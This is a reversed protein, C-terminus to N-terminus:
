WGVLDRVRPPRCDRQHHRCDAPGHADRHRATDCFAEALDLLPPLRLVDDLSVSLTSEWGCAVRKVRNAIISDANAAQYAAIKAEM